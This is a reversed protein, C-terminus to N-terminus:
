GDLRRRARERRAADALTWLACPWALDPRTGGPIACTLCAGTANPRHLAMLSDVLDPWTSLVEVSARWIRPGETGSEDSQAM